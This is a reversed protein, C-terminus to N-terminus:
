QDGRSSHDIKPPQDFLASGFAMRRYGKTELVSRLFAQLEDLQDPTFAKNIMAKRITEGAPTETVVVLARTTEAPLPGTSLLGPAGATVPIDDGGVHPVVVPRQGPVLAVVTAFGGLDSQLEVTITKEKGRTLVNRSTASAVLVEM